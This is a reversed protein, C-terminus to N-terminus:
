EAVADQINTSQRQLERGKSEKDTAFLPKSPIKAVSLAM